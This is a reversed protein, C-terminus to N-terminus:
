AYMMPSVAYLNGNSGPALVVSSRKGAVLAVEGGDKVNSPWTFPFPGGEAPQIISVPILGNSVQNQFIGATDQNLVLEFGYGLNGDFVANAAPTVQYILAKPMPSGPPPPTYTSLNSLDQTGYGTIQYNGSQTVNNESDVVQICYFTGSPNIVDNGWLQTSIIGEDNVEVEQTARSVMASGVVRPNASGYGALTIRILANPDVQGLIDQLTATLTIQPTM